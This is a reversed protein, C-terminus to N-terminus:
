SMKWKRKFLILLESVEIWSMKDSESCYVRIFCLGSLSIGKIIQVTNKHVLNLILESSKWFNLLKIQKFWTVTDWTIGEIHTQRPLGVINNAVLLDYYIRSSNHICFVNGPINGVVFQKSQLMYTSIYAKWRQM